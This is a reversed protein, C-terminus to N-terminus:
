DLASIGAIKEVWAIDEQEMPAVAAMIKQQLGSIIVGPNDKKLELLLYLVHKQRVRVELSNDM